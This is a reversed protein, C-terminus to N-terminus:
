GATLEPREEPQDAHLRAAEAVDRSVQRPEVRYKVRWHVIDLERGRQILDPSDDNTLVVVPLFRTAGNSRMRQVLDLGNMDPLRIDVIALDFDSQQQELRQWAAEGSSVQSVQYGDLELRLRYREAVDLDDEVFLVRIVPDPMRRAM